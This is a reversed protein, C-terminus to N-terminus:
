MEVSHLIFIWCGAGLSKKEVNLAMQAALWYLLQPQACCMKEPWRLMLM